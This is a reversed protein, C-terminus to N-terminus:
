KAGGNENTRYNLMNLAASVFPGDPYQEVVRRCRSIIVSDGEAKTVVGEVWLDRYILAIMYNAVGAWKYEPWEDAVTEYYVAAKQAQGLDKYCLALFYYADVPKDSDPLREIIKEWIKTAKLWRENHITDDLMAPSGDYRMGLEYYEAGIRFVMEATQPDDKFDDILKNTATEAQEDKQSRILGLIHVKHVDLKAKAAAPSQPFKEVVQSYANKAKDYHGAKEYAAAIDYLGTALDPNNAFRSLMESTGAEANPDDALAISCLVYGKQSEMAYRSTPWTAVARKYLERAKDYRASERYCDAINDVAKAAGARGAFEGFLRDTGAAANPEDNLLISTRVVGGLCNLAYDAQPYNDVVHQYLRRAQEYRKLERLDDALHDVVTAINPYSGFDSLLKNIAAESNPEDGLLISTLAIARQSDTAHEAEPWSMVAYRYTDRAQEYDKVERYADAVHDVAKALGEFESFVAVMEDFAADAEGSKDQEIYLITLKEQAELGDGTQPYDAVIQKYLAEAAAFNADDAYKGAQEFLASVDSSEGRCIASPVALLAACILFVIKGRMTNAEKESQYPRIAGPVLLQAFEVAAGCL